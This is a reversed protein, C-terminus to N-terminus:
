NGRVRCAICPPLAIGVGDGISAGEGQPMYQRVRPLLSVCMLLTSFLPPCFSSEPEEIASAVARPRSQGLTRWNLTKTALRRPPRSSTTRRKSDVSM